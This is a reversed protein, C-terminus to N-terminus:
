DGIEVTMGSKGGKVARLLFTKGNRNMVVSKPMLAMSRCASLMEDLRTATYVAYFTGGNRLLAKAARLVGDLTVTIESDAASAVKRPLSNQKYYPPNCVVVDYKGFTNETIGTIDTNFFRVNDLDNLACSRVSMDFLEADLEAGDVRCGKELAVLIGVIGCGSCLDFVVDTSKIKRSAFSALKVADEGFRYGTRSQIIYKGDGLPEAAEGEKLAVNM